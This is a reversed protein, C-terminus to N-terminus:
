PKTNNKESDSSRPCIQLPSIKMLKNYDANELIIIPINPADKRHNFEIANYDNQKFHNVIAQAEKESTLQLWIKGDSSIKWDRNPVIKNVAKRLEEKGASAVPSGSYIESAGLKLKNYTDKMPSLSEQTEPKKQAAQLHTQLQKDLENIKNQQEKIINELASIKQPAENLQLLRVVEHKGNKGAIQLATESLSNIAKYDAGKDLLLRVIEVNGRCAAGHLPTNGSSDKINPDASGKLLLKVVKKNGILCALHLSTQGTTHGRGATIRLINPLLPRLTDLSFPRPIDLQKPMIKDTKVEGSPTIVTYELGNKVERLYLKDKEPQLNDVMLRVDYWQGVNHISDLNLNDGLNEKGWILCEIAKVQNYYVALYLQANYDDKREAEVKRLLYNIEAYNEKRTTYHYESVLDVMQSPNFGENNKAELNAGNSLLWAVMQACAGTVATHLPTHGGNDKAELNAGAALLLQAIEVRKTEHLPARSNQDRAEPDAGEALLWAVMEHYGFGVATHLPTWSDKKGKLYSVPYNLKQLQVLNKTNAAEFVAKSFQEPTCLKNEKAFSLIQNKKDQNIVLRNSIKETTLPSTGNEAIWKEIVQKEYTYGDEAVVPEIFLSQTMPCKFSEPIELKPV